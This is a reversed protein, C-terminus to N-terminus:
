NDTSTMWSSRDYCAQLQANQWNRSAIQDTAPVNRVTRQRRRLEGSVLVPHGGARSTKSYPMHDLVDANLSDPFQHFADADSLEDLTKRVFDFGVKTPPALEVLRRPMRRM